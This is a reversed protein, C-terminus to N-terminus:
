SPVDRPDGPVLSTTFGWPVGFSTTPDTVITQDDRRAIRAGAKVLHAEARDLDRVLFTMSHYSDHPDPNLAGHVHLGDALPVACEFVGDGLVVYTSESGIVENRATHIVQGGLVDLWLRLAREPRRTVITHTSCALVGLGGDDAPASLQWGPQLRLDGTRRANAETPSCEMFQYALGAEDRLVYFSPYGVKGGFAMQETVEGAQNLCRWGHEQLREFLARADDVYWGFHGLSPVAVPPIGRLPFEKKGGLILRDPDISEIFTDQVLHFIGYDIPYGDRQPVEAMIEATTQTPQEFVREFWSAASGLDPVWLIPHKTTRVWSKVNV